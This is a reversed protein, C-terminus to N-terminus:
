IQPYFLHWIRPPPPPANQNQNMSYTYSIMKAWSRQASLHAKRIAQQGYTRNVKWMDLVAPYNFKMLVQCFVAKPLIFELKNLYFGVDNELSFILSIVFIYPCCKFINKLVLNKVLKLFSFFFRKKLVVQGIDFRLTDNSSTSEHKNLHFPWAMKWTPYCGYLSFVHNIRFFIYKYFWQVFKLWVQCPADRLSSFIFSWTGKVNPLERITGHGVFSSRVQRPMSTVRKWPSIIAFYHFYMSTLQIGEEGYGSFWNWGFM